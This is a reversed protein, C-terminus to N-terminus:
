LLAALLLHIAAVHVTALSSGAFSSINRPLPTSGAGVETCAHGPANGPAAVSSRAQGAPPARRALGRRVPPPPATPAPQATDAAAEAAADSSASTAPQWHRERPVEANSAAENKSREAGGGALLYVLVPGCLVAVLRRWQQATLRNRRGQRRPPM